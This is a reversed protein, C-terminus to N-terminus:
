SNQISQVLKMLLEPNSQMLSKLLEETSETSEQQASELSKGTLFADMKNAVSDRKTAFSHNGYRRTLMELNAWGGAHKVSNFDGNSLILKTAASTHRLSHFVIEEPDIDPDNMEELIDKFRKNLHETM